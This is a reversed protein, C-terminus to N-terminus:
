NEIQVHEQMVVTDTGTPIAAGTMIRVCEGKNVDGKYPKGAWSTGIKKLSTTSDTPIDNSHIAYGDMASNTHGPVDIMSFIDEALTRSLAERIPIKITQTLSSVQNLILQLAQKADMSTPDFDDMCSPDHKISDSKQKNTIM